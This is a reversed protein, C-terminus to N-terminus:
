TNSLKFDFCNLMDSSGVLYTFGINYDPNTTRNFSLNSFMAYCTGDFKTLIEKIEVEKEGFKNFGRKLQTKKIFYNKSLGLTFDRELKYSINSCFENWTMNANDLILHNTEDVQNADMCFMSTINHLKLMSPKFPPEFCFTLAPINVGEDIVDNNSKAFNTKRSAYQNIVDMMFFVFFFILLTIYIIVKTVTSKLNM